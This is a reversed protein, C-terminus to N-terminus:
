ALSQFQEGFLTSAFRHLPQGQRQMGAGEVQPFPLRHLADPQRRPSQSRQAQTPRLTLLRRRLMGDEVWAINDSM